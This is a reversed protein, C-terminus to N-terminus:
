ALLLTTVAVFGLGEATNIEALRAQNGGSIIEIVRDSFLIWLTAAIGYILSVRVDFRKLFPPM